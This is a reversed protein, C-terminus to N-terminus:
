LYLPLEQSLKPLSPCNSTVPKKENAISVLLLTGYMKKDSEMAKRESTNFRNSPTFQIFTPLVPNVCKGVVTEKGEKFISM